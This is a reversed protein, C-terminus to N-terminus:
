FERVFHRLCAPLLILTVLGAAVLISSILFGVTQYPVLPALLLPLFGVGVVIINRAIARAPEGFVPGVAAEWSGKQRALERSRALFHIAYDVALGLALSSLVAVPMDYAKGAFGIAGYILTITASLPIMALIGWVFSRFLIVMLIFVIVFSSLLAELMGAVMRDQWVTNIYTLGFWQDSELWPPRNARIYDNAQDVVATMDRNDGSKLQLWIAARSFDPTVLHYLDEPRHSSEFTLITQAVARSSGPIVYDSDNGSILERYVTKVLDPLAVTKGVLGKSELHAQLGGIWALTDPDKFIEPETAQLNLYAPYTGAFRENLVTDAVRIPHKPEFWKVPNDNIVIRTIGITSIAFTFASGILILKSNRFTWRGIAPLIGSDEDHHADTSKLGFNALKADDLFLVIYAPILIVTLLWALLVGLAVFIGFVQVPPIPALALSGFGATTTLSTFLMPRWLTRMVSEIAKRKDRTEPYRDYFESLIHVADLVAIPMIFIPIMSSMIHVTNGTIILLGMTIIVSIMAVVMPSVILRLDKFFLWMLLFILVMAMPASIAMQIFMEVGFTDNAVPLGTIHYEAGTTPLTDIHALLDQSIRYSLDKSEIPIQLVIATGDESVVSGRLMPLKLLKDRVALAGERDIPVEPMIWDFSVAGIGAQEINDLNSPAMVQRSIVGETAIARDTISQINALTQPTFVGDPSSADVVGLLITDYLAFEAKAARHFVRSSEESSLMNEPDTDVKLGNLGPFTKPFITPLAALALIIGASIVSTAVVARPYRLGFSSLHHSM